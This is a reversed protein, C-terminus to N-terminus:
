SLCACSRRFKSNARLQRSCEANRKKKGMTKGKEWSSHLNGMDEHSYCCLRHLNRYTKRKSWWVWIFRLFCPHSPGCSPTENKPMYSMAGKSETQLMLLFHTPFALRTHITKSIYLAVRHKGPFNKPLRLFASFGSELRNNSWSLLLWEDPKSYSTICIIVSVQWGRRFSRLLHVDWLRERPM